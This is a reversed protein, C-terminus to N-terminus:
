DYSSDEEYFGDQHDNVLNVIFDPFGHLYVYGCAVVIIILLILKKM